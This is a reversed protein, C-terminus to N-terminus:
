KLREETLVSVPQSLPLPQITRLNALSAVFADEPDLSAIEPHELRALLHRESELLMEDHKGERILKLFANTAVPDFQTGRNAKLEEIARSMPLAMRYSRNTTMSDYADAIHVIRAAIPISSGSQRYPYGTGDYNEHHLEVVELLKGFIEVKELIKRGVQTHLKILGYEEATLPGPKQLILDPIGLKGIDHLKAAIRITEAESAPIGMERAIAYAYAGVRISHGATYPDRADLAQAMTEVFQLYARDLDGRSKIHLKRSGTAFVALPVALAVACARAIPNGASFGVCVTFGIVLAIAPLSKTFDPRMRQTAGCACM